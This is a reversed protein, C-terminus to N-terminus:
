KRSDVFVGGWQRTGPRYSRWAQRGLRAAQLRSAFEEQMGALAAAAEGNVERARALIGRAERRLGRLEEWRPEGALDDEGMGRAALAERLGDVARDMQRDLADLSEMRAQREALLRLMEGAQDAGAEEGDGQEGGAGEHWRGVLGALAATLELFEGLLSLKRRALSCLEELNGEVQQNVPM